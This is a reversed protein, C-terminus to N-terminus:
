RRYTFERAGPRLATTGWRRHGARLEWPMPWQDYRIPTGQEYAKVVAKIAFDELQDMLAAMEPSDVAYSAYVKRQPIDKSYFFAHAHHIIRAMERADYAPQHVLTYYDRVRYLLFEVYKTDAGPTNSM